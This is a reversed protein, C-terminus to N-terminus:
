KDCKELIEKLTPEIVTAMRLFGIDSPHCGDVTFELGDEGFFEKGCIFYVNRDGRAKANDYTRKVIEIRANCERNDKYDPRTMMIVPLDPHAQRIELFM